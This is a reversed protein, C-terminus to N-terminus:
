IDPVHDPREPWWAYLGIRDPRRQQREHVPRGAHGHGGGAQRGQFAHRHLHRQCEGQYPLGPIGSAGARRCGARVPRPLGRSAGQRVSNPDSDLPGNFGDNRWIYQDSGVAPHWYHNPDTDGLRSLIDKDAKGAIANYLDRDKTPDMKDLGAALDDEDLHNLMYNFEAPSLIKAYKALIEKAKEPHEKLEREYDDVATNARATDGDKAMAAAVPQMIGALLEAQDSNSMSLPNPPQPAKKTALDHDPADLNKMLTKNAELADGRAGNGDSVASWLKIAAEDEHFTNVPNVYNLWNNDRDQEMKKHLDQANNANSTATDADSVADSISGQATTAAKNAADVSKAVGDIYGALDDIYTGCAKAAEGKWSAPIVDKLYGHADSAAAAVSHYSSALSSYTNERDPVFDQSSYPPDWRREVDDPHDDKRAM